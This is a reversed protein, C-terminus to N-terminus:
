SHNWRQGERGGDKRNIRRGHSETYVDGWSLRVVDPFYDMMGRRSGNGSGM